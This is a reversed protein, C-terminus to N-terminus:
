HRSIPGHVLSGKMAAYNNFVQNAEAERIKQIMVQKASQAAIRGLETPNIEEEGKRAQIAGTDRDITVTVGSEEGYRKEVALQLAAQIGEFIIERDIDKEHQMQDVIRLVESPKM